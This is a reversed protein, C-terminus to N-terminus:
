CINKKKLVQLKEKQVSNRAFEAFKQAPILLVVKCQQVRCANKASSFFKRM